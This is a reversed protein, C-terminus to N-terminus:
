KEESSGNPKCAGVVAIVVVSLLTAVRRADLASVRNMAAECHSRPRRFRRRAVPGQSSEPREHQSGNGERPRAGGAVTGVVRDHSGQRPPRAGSVNGCAGG